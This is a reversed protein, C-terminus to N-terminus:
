ESHLKPNYPNANPCDGNGTGSNICSANIFFAFLVHTEVLRAKEM